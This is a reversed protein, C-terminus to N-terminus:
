AKEENQAATAQDAEGERQSRKQRRTGGPWHNCQRETQLTHLLLLHM